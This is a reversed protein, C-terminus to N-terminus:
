LNYFTYFTYLTYFYCTQVKYFFCRSFYCTWGILFIWYFTLLPVHLVQELQLHVCDFVHLVQLIHHPTDILVASRAGWDSWVKIQLDTM